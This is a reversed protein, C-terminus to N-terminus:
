CQTLTRQDILDHKTDFSVLILIIDPSYSVANVLIELQFLYLSLEPLFFNASPLIIYRTFFIFQFCIKKEGVARIQFSPKIANIYRLDYIIYILLKFKKMNSSILNYVKINNNMHLM